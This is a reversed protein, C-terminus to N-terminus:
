LMKFGSKILRSLYSDAAHYPVGCMPIDEDM